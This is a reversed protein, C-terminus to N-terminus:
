ALLARTAGALEIVADRSVRSVGGMNLFGHIMGTFRRHAVPVGAVRLADAYADGEDRLPDFGATIVFAPALGSLDAARLPSRAPEAPDFGEGM